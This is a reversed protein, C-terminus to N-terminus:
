VECQVAPQASLDAEPQGRLSATATQDVRAAADVAVKYADMAARRSVYGFRVDRAVVETPRLAPDGFGGGGGSEVVFVDGPDLQQGPLKGDPPMVIGSATEVQIRNPLGSHGGSLGWPACRTREINVTFRLPSLARVRTRTGLGGRYRGAGGSDQRLAYEEILIPLIHETAEIPSNHTDGDNICITASVGDSDHKAGWGGGMVGANQSFFRGTRRDVGYLKRSCLDAHHAAAVLGPAAPAVARFITDIVTMPVTMWKMMAAPKLASVVRGPPLVVTLPRFAGENIPYLTPTTLCKFAVRAASLGTARSSNFNGAVQPSVDSLDVVMEDGTIRVSVRIPVPVGKHVGDDDMFSEASYEGDPMRGIALRALRESHDYLDRVTRLFTERGYRSILEGVRRQGTRIAAVQARLDGLAREPFRVNARLIRTIEDDQVGHKFLKLIPLQLGESYIDQTITGLTQGIDNWHAMTSALAIIEGGAFIPLTIVVHNLHSGTIYSDNTVLIDGPSIGELGYFEIKAKVTEALGHIFMPLGLGISITNGSTDFLGVTYDLAEYIVQNYATKMLNTKMEDTIANLLGRVVETTVADSATITKM